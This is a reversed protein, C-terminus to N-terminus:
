YPEVLVTVTNNRRSGAPYPLQTSGASRLNVSSLPVGLEAAAVQARRFGLDVTSGHGIVSISAPLPKVAQGLEILASRGSTSLRADRSFLGDNFTVMAASGQRTVTFRPSVLAAVLQDFRQAPAALSARLAALDRSLQDQRAAVEDLGSLDPPAPPPAPPTTAPLLVGVGAVVAVVAVAVPLVRPRFRRAQLAAIRRRGEVAAQLSPDLSQARSWCSDADAFEGRQAHVRALLDLVRPDDSDHGGLEELSVLADEYQGARAAEVAKTLVASM